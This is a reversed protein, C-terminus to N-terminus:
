RSRMGWSGTTGDSSMRWSGSCRRRFRGTFLIAFWAVIVVVVMGHRPLVARHLAPDGPVVEGAFFGTSGRPLTRASTTSTSRRTDGDVPRDDTLAVYVGVRNSFRHLELNWDFWWRPYKQRFVIMVLPPVFLLGTGGVAIVGTDSGTGHGSSTYGGITALLIAIPIVTFVRFATTGRDLERDPYDVSFRVPNDNNM